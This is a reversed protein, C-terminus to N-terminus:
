SEAGSPQNIWFRAEIHGLACFGTIALRIVARM